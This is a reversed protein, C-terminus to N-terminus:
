GIGYWEALVDERRVREKVFQRLGIVDLYCLLIEWAEGKCKRQLIM